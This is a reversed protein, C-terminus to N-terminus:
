VLHRVMTWGSGDDAELITVTDGSYITLEDPSNKIYDFLVLISKISPIMHSQMSYADSQNSNDYGEMEFPNQNSSKSMGSVSLPRTPPPVPATIGINEMRSELNNTSTTQQHYNTSTQAGASPVKCTSIIEIYSAPVLGQVNHRSVTAWGSGDDDQIVSVVEDRHISIEDSSSAIYDYLVRAPIVNAIMTTELSSGAQTKLNSESHHFDQSSQNSYASSRTSLGTAINPASATVTNTHTYSLPLTAQTASYIPSSKASSLQQPMLSAPRSPSSIVRRIKPTGKIGPCTPSIKLECKLHANFSCDRCSIGSKTVGWVTQQCVDCPTPIAFSINKFNHVKSGSPFEGVSDVIAKIQTELKCKLTHVLVLGRNSELLNEYIDDANGQQPNATYVKLLNEMGAIGKKEVSIDHDTATLEQRIKALKNRLFIVCFEDTVIEGADIWFSCPMFVFDPPRPISKQRTADYVRSDCVPNIAAVVNQTAHIDSLSAETTEERLTMYKQWIQKVSLVVLRGLDRMGDLLEPIDQEYHKAKAANASKIALLYLNKANNMDLIEQHWARKLKEKSKEDIGREHKAKSSDVMDCSEFYKYKAKEIENEMKEREFILRQSFVIYKKRSEDRRNGLAKLQEAIDNHLSDALSAHRKASQTTERLISSWCSRSTSSSEILSIASDGHVVMESVPESTALNTNSGSSPGSESNSPIGVSVLLSSRKSDLKDRRIEYKKALAELRKSCERELDARERMYDRVDSFFSIDHSLHQDALKIDQIEPAAGM